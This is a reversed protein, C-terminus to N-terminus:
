HRNVIKAGGDGPVFAIVNPLSEWRGDKGKEVRGLKKLEKFLRYFTSEGFGEETAKVKWETTTLREGNLVGILEEAKHTATRGRPKKLDNPDLDSREAMLPFEWAIVFPEQEPLNRLILDVTFAHDQEEKHKTLTIITDADRTWVGSGSIRDIADKGAQNGKSFHATYFVAAGTQVAIRELENCLEGIDGASNEDRGGLGKYIPDIIVLSYNQGKVRSIIEALLKNLEAANGRLTWVDLNSPDTIGKKECLSRIRSVIFPRPIEFNIFLVKGKHTAWKWWPTGTAVSLALDLLIWTKRAKSNSGLVAKLGQHLVGVIIQEPIQIQQDALLTAANDISPLTVRPTAPTEPIEKLQDM